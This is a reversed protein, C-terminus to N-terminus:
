QISLLLFGEGSIWTSMWANVSISTYTGRFPITGVVIPLDLELNSGWPVNVELRLFYDVHVVLSNLITPPTQPITMETNVWASTSGQLIADGTVIAITDYFPISHAPGFNYQKSCKGHYKVMKMLKAKLAPMDRKTRNEVQATIFIKEGPCYAKRNIHGRLFLQGIPRFCSNVGKHIEGGQQRLYSPENTDILDKIIIPYKTNHNLWWNRDITANLCYSIHGHRGKFSSPLASPLQFMFPYIHKGLPHERSEASGELAKQTDGFLISENEILTEQGIYTISDDVGCNEDWDCYGKGLLQISVKKMKMPSNLNVIVRGRLIQEPYFETREEELTIYFERLKGM